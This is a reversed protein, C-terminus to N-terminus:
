GLYAFGRRTSSSKLPPKAFWRPLSKIMVCPSSAATDCIGPMRGNSSRSRTSWSTVWRCQLMKEATLSEGWRSTKKEPLNTFPCHTVTLKKLAPFIEDRNRPVFGDKVKAVFLLKKNEYIGGLLADFGRAGPIYGCIVFDQERNM